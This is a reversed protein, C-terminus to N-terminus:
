EFFIKINSYMLNQGMNMKLGFLGAANQRNICIELYGANNFRCLKSGEKVSSYHPSIESIQEGRMFEIRFRRGRAAEDFQTKTINIVVNEYRDIHIVQCDASNATILPQFNTNDDNIACQKYGSGIGAASYLKELVRGTEHLWDNFHGPLEWEFCALPNTVAKGFAISLIGNDPALFWYGDKECLVLRPKKNYFVDLLVVHCTGDPFNKYSSLLLYAAQQKHYPAVLHSIDIIPNASYQMLIGKASAVSADQLGFDSILTICAMGAAAFTSQLIRIAIYCRPSHM